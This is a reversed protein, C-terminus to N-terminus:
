HTAFVRTAGNKDFAMVNYPEAKVYPSEMGPSGIPMGGVAIGAIAPKEKLMRHVDAPPVHGEVVYGNVVATHCSQVEGPVGRTKKIESLDNVDTTRVNFGSKRMHEVWLACCGCTPSKFVEVLPGAPKQQAAQLDPQLRASGAYAAAGVLAAVAAAFAVSTSRSM